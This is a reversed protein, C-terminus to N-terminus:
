SKVKVMVSILILLFEPRRKNNDSMISNYIKKDKIHTELDDFCNRVDLSIFCYDTSKQFIKM